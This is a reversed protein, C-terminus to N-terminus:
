GTGVLMSANTIIQGAPWEPPPNRGWAPPANDYKRRIWNLMGDADEVVYPENAEYAATIDALIPPTIRNSMIGWGRRHMFDTTGPEEQIEVLFEADEVPIGPLDVKLYTPYGERQGWEHDDPMVVIVDWAKTNPRGQVTDEKDIWRILLRCM